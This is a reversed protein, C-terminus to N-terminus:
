RDGTSRRHERLLAVFEPVLKALGSLLQEFSRPPNKLAAAQEEVLEVM